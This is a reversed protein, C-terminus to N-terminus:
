KILKLIYSKQIFSSSRTKITRFRSVLESLLDNPLKTLQIIDYVKHFPKTYISIFYLVSKFKLNMFLLVTNTYLLFM